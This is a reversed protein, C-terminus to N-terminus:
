GRRRIAFGRPQPEFGSTALWAEFEAAPMPRGIHYGQAVDCGMETLRDLSGQDEVGEAVVSLGLTHALYLTSRVIEADNDSSALRMVFSRDIKLEKVPLRQLYALSSYGTGFDDIALTLGMRALAEMVGLALGSQEMVSSETIEIELMSPDVGHRDLFGSIEDPLSRDALDRMSVNVAVPLTIGAELWTSTQHLAVAIVNSTFSRILGAHEALPIFVDPPVTGHAPDNWRALAEVGIVESTKLDLKPQFHLEIRGQEIAERLSSVMTLREKTYLDQDPSYLAISSGGSKAVYMAIDARRILDDPDKGHEPYLALGISAGVELQLDTLEFAGALSRRVKAAVDSANEITQLGELIAGFEDGGLRAVTDVGRLASALRPGVQRLLSDGNEHGLADNIEKFRDLDMVLVAVLAGHRDAARIAQELRDRFLLRNPLGTLQDHLALHENEDARRRLEAADGRLRRSAGLVMRFLLVWLLGLGGLIILYLRVTDVSIAHAIPQYPIYIEFAGQLPGGKQLRLPFYVELLQGFSREAVNEAEDLSSIDASVHGELAERLDPSIAFTQGILSHDDSYVITGHSTWVKVRALRGDAVGARFANDLEILDHHSVGKTLDSPQLHSRLGVDAVIETADAANAIARSRIQAAEVHALLFGLVAVAVASLVAFRGALGFRRMLDGSRSHARPQTDASRESTKILTRGPSRGRGLERRQGAPRTARGRISTADATDLLRRLFPAIEDLEHIGLVERKLGPAVTPGAAACGRAQPPLRARGM